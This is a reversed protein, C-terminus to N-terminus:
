DTSAWGNPVTPNALMLVEGPQSRSVASLSNSLWVFMESFALGKLHLPDRVAIKRLQDLNADQVGVAYFSFQKAAEGERVMAAAQRVSDTPAGDTILFIWPRYYSIGNARYAAKRENLIAIATMIAEGMPTAGRARLEGVNLQDATTFTQVVEVPGFGVVAVEVRKAAMTDNRLEEGFLRVGENLQAIRAGSMSTSTDLVLICPCRPEPNDVFEFEAFEVQDFESMSAGALKGDDYIFM